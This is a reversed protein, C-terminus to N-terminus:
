SIVVVRRWRNAWLESFCNLKLFAQFSDRLRRCVHLPPIPLCQPIVLQFVYAVQMSTGYTLKRLSYGTSVTNKDLFLIVLFNFILPKQTQTEYSSNKECIINHM